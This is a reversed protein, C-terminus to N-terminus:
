CESDMSERETASGVDCNRSSRTRQSWHGWAMGRTYLTSMLLVERQPNPATPLLFGGCHTYLMSYVSPLHCRHNGDSNRTEESEVVNWVFAICWQWSVGYVRFLGWYKSCTSLIFHLRSYVWGKRRLRAKKARNKGYADVLELGRVRSHVCWMLSCM